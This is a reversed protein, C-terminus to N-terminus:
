AQVEERLVAPDTRRAGVRRAGAGVLACLAAAALATGTAVLTLAGPDGVPDLPVAAAPVRVLPLHPLLLGTALVGGVGSALVVTGAQGAVELRGARRLTRRPVGLLRLAAVEQGHSARRRRAPAAAALVAVVGALLAVLAYGRAQAAGTEDRVLARVDALTRPAGGGAARVAALVAPPTDARALVVVRSGAVGPPSAALASSLDGVLGDGEVLPLAAVTAIVRAPRPDGGPGAVTGADRASGTAVVPLATGSSGPALEVADRLLGTTGLGGAWTVLRREGDRDTVSRPDVPTWAAALLDTGGVTLSRLSLRPASSGDRPGVSLRTAVCGRDCGALPAEPSRVRGGPGVDVRVTASETYDGDAVYDVVVLLSGPQAGRALADVEIRDGAVVVAGRTSRLRPALAALDAAGTGALHEGAVRAWRTADVFARRDAGEGRTAVAAAALWDGAPDVDRTTRLAAAASGDYELALPAGARLRATEDAWADVARAGGLALGAVVAVAVLLRVAAASDASRALRRVAVFVATGRRGTLPVAARAALRLGLVAAEGVALGLLAPAALTVLDPDDGVVRTRYAAVVAAAVVLARALLTGAGAARQRRAPSVQAALPERVVGATGVLVGALGVVVVALCALVTVPGPAGPEAGDLWAGSATRALLLGLPVGAATGLLLAVLPETALQGVVQPVDAGRLRALGIEDRRAAALERGLAPVAVLGLVLLPVVLTPSTGAADTFGVVGVTGAVVVVALVLLALLLAVRQLAGRLARSM